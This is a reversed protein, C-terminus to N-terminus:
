KVSTVFPVRGLKANMSAPYPVVVFMGARALRDQGALRLDRADHIREHGAGRPLIRHEEEAVVFAAAGVIVHRRHRAVGIVVGIGPM